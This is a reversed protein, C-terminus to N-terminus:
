FRLIIELRFFQELPLPKGSSFEGAVRAAISSPVSKVHSLSLRKVHFLGHVVIQRARSLGAKLGLVLACARGIAAGTFGPLLKTRNCSYAVPHKRRADLKRTLGVPSAAAKWATAPRTRNGGGAGFLLRWLLAPRRPSAGTGTLLHPSATSARSGFRVRFSQPLYLLGPVGCM